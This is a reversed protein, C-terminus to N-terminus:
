QERFDAAPPLRRSVIEHGVASDELGREHQRHGVEAAGPHETSVDQILTGGLAVNM